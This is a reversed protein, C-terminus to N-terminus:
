AHGPSSICCANEAARYTSFLLMVWNAVRYRDFQVGPVLLDTAPAIAWLMEPSIAGPGSHSHSGFMAINDFPIKFGQAAAMEYALETLTGDSGTFLM